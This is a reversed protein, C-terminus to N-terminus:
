AIGLVNSLDDDHSLPSDANEQQQKASGHSGEKKKKKKKKESTTGRAREDRRNMQMMGYRRTWKREGARVTTASQLGAPGERGWLKQLAGHAAIKKVGTATTIIGVGKEGGGWGGSM